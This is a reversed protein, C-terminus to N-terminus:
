FVAKIPELGEAQSVALQCLSTIFEGTGQLV